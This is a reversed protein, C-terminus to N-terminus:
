LATSRKFVDNPYAEDGISFQTTGVKEFGQALYFAIAPTNESNTTLWVSNHGGQRSAVLAQNLLARGIGKGHHRPQVYLTAIETTSCNAVPADVGHSIRIFGDLGDDNESVWIQENPNDILAWFRAATFESLAYDAFLANVGHRIYTGLWVEISIAALISADAPRAIRISM